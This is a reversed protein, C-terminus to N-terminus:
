YYDFGGVDYEFGYDGTDEYHAFDGHHAEREVYDHSSVDNYDSYDHHVVGQVREGAGGHHSPLHSYDAYDATYDSIDPHGGGNDESFDFAYDSSYDANRRMAVVGGMGMM